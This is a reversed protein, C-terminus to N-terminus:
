TSACQIRTGQPLQFHPQIRGGRGFRGGNFRGGRHRGRGRYRGRINNHHNRANNHHNNTNGGVPVHNVNNAETLPHQQTAFFAIPNALSSPETRKLLDEEQLLHSVLEDFSTAPSFHLHTLFSRYSEDLGDAVFGIIEEEEISSGAARIADTTARVEMLYESMSVDAKKKTARLKTRLSKIHISCLPSLFRDLLQWAEKSTSCHLIMSQVSPSATARIWTLVLQDSKLWKEYEINDITGLLQRQNCILNRLSIPSTM